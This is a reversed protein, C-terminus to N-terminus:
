TNLILTNPTINHRLFEYKELEKSIGFMNELLTKNISLSFILHKEASSIASLM